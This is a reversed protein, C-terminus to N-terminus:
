VFTIINPFFNVCCFRVESLSEVAPKLLASLLLAELGEAAADAANVAAPLLM